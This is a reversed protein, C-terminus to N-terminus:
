QHARNKIKMYVNLFNVIERVPMETVTAVYSRDQGIRDLFYIMLWQICSIKCFREIFPLAVPLYPQKDEAFLILQQYWSIMNKNAYYENLFYIADLAQIGQPRFCDLDIVYNNGNADKLINNPHFDGHSPGVYFSERDMLATIENACIQKKERGSIEEIVNLGIKLQEFDEAKNQHRIEACLQFRELINQAAEFLESNETVPYRRQTEIVSYCFHKKYLYPLILCRLPEIENLFQMNKIEHEICEARWSIKLFVSDTSLIVIWPISSRTRSYQQQGRYKFVAVCLWQQITYFTKKLLSWPIKAFFLIFFSKPSENFLLLAKQSKTRL